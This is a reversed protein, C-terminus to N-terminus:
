RLDVRAARVRAAGLVGEPVPAWVARAQESAVAVALVEEGLRRLQPCGPRGTQSGLRLLLVVPLTTWWARCGVSNWRRLIRLMGDPLMPVSKFCRPHDCHRRM